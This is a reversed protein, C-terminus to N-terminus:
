VLAPGPAETDGLWFKDRHPHAGWGKLLFLSKYHRHKGLLIGNWDPPLHHLHPISPATRTHLPCRQSGSPIRLTPDPRVPAM